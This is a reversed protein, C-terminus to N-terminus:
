KLFKEITQTNIVKDLSFLDNFKNVYYILEDTVTFSQCKPLYHINLHELMWYTFDDLFINYEQQIFNILKPIKNEIFFDEMDIWTIDKYGMTVLSPGEFIQTKLLNYIGEWNYDPSSDYMIERYILWSKPTTFINSVFQRPYKEGFPTEEGKELITNGGATGRLFLYNCKDFSKDVQTHPWQKLDDRIWDRDEKSFASYLTPAPFLHRYDPNNFYKLYHYQTREGSEDYCGTICTQNRDIFLNNLINNMGALEQMVILKM